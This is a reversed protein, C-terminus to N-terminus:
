PKRPSRLPLEVTIPSHDSIREAPASNLEVMTRAFMPPMEEVGDVEVPKVFFWDLKFRGYFGKFDRPLSFTYVFGKRDRQNSNALKRGTDNVTYEPDGRFDFHQKDAFEFRQTKTFLAAEKNNALVKIDTATPDNFNKFYNLAFTSPLPTGFRVVQGAWFRYDSAKTKAIYGLSLKAADAGTTNLDGSLVVPNPNEKIADFIANMQRVRCASPCKNELHANVVTVKGGAAEKVELDAFIAIRGGRRMEREIKELFIKDSAIRKGQEVKAVSEVEKGFWDYCVPLRMVRVNSIPYRSLIASGHLGRYRKPDAQQLDDELEKRLEEDGGADAKTLKETGLKLPDIEVFEVGYAVNMKREAALERAVDRYGSRGMGLDVKNLVLKSSQALLKAEDTAKDLDEASLTPNDKAARMRFARADKLALAVWDFNQGREINWEAARVTPGLGQVELPAAGQSMSNDVVAGHLVASLKGNLGKPLPATKSLTVLESYTFLPFSAPTYTKTQVQARVVGCAILVVLGLRGASKM